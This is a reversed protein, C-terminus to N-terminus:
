NVPKDAITAPGGGHDDGRVVGSQDIFFSRKGSKGYEAPVAVAEFGHASTTVEFKYGYKELVDKEL